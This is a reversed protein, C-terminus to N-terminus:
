LSTNNDGEFMEEGRKLYEEMFQNFLSSLTKNELAARSKFQRFLTPNIVVTTRTNEEKKEGAETAPLQAPEPEAAHHIMNQLPSAAPATGSQPVKIAKKAM